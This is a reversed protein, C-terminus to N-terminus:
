ALLYEFSQLKPAMTQNECHHKAKQSMLHNFLKEHTHDYFILNVYAM